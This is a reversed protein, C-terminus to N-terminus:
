GGDTQRGEVDRLFVVRKSATALTEIFQERTAGTGVYDGILLVDSGNAKMQRLVAPYDDGVTPKIEIGLAAEFGSLHELGGGSQSIYRRLCIRKRTRLWWCL